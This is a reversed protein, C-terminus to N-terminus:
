KRVFDLGVGILRLEPTIKSAAHNVGPLFEVVLLEAAVRGCLFAVIATCTVLMMKLSRPIAEGWVRAYKAFAEQKFPDIEYRIFCTIM